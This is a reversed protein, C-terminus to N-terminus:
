GIWNRFKPATEKSVFVDEKSDPKLQVKIKGNESRFKEIASLSSLYKRNLRFFSNSDLMSELESITKDVILQREKFDKAFVIKHETFFYAIDNVDLAVFEAGKKGLVRNTVPSKIHNLIKLLNGQVFHDHLSKVKELSRRLRDETIPKLLYDISNFEFSTLLYKDFATTFIIPFKIPHRKFIEFSHDDSLQIDVFGLDPEPNNQLWHLTEEVSGLKGIIEISGGIAILMEELKARAPLEDEILIVKM